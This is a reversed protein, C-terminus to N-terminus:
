ALVAGCLNSAAAFSRHVEELGPALLEGEKSWGFGEVYPDPFGVAENQDLIERVQICTCACFM